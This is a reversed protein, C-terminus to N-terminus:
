TYGPRKVYYKVYNRWNQAMSPKISHEIQTLWGDLAPGVKRRTASVVLGGEYDKITAPGAARTPTGANM